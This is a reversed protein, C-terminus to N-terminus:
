TTVLPWSAATSSKEALLDAAAAVVASPAIGRLCRHHGEPCVSRLCNRCPVDHTLLRHPVQWPTHQPNTQAYIDVVPTGLAAAIHVPASNGSVVVPAVGVLASFAGLDLRGAVSVAPAHAASRVANVLPVEGASGSLVVQLGLADLGDVVRALLEPPYRRSPASAGPHVIVWPRDPVVGAAGLADLAIRGGDQPPLLSLREDPTTAGIAAVLDLQRRVEHRIGAPGDTEPVWNTLLAYPNERCHALLLPIGALYCLMAAPLPNQTHVTFIVAADFRERRLLAAMREVGRPDAAPGGHKMWPADYVIVDDIEPVFRAIAAGAASTLLTIRRGPRTLARFAPTTMLVDGITDLRVCLVREASAWAQDHAM